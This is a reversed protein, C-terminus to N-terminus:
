VKKSYITKKEDLQSMLKMQEITTKRIEKDNIRRAISTIESIYGDPEDSGLLLYNPTTRLEKAINLLVSSPIDSGTEYKSLTGQKICLVGALYEQSLGLELRKEKIRGGLSNNM